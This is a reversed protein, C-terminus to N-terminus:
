RRIYDVALETAEFLIWHADYKPDPDHTHENIIIAVGGNFYDFCIGCGTIKCAEVLAVLPGTGLM